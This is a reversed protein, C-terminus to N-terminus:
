KIMDGYTKKVADKIFFIDDAFYRDTYAIVIKVDDSTLSVRTDYLASFVASSLVSKLPISTAYTYGRTYERGKTSTLTVKIDYTKEIKNKSVEIKVESVIVTRGALALVPLALSVMLVLGMLVIISRKRM